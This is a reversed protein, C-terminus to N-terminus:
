QQLDFISGDDTVTNLKWAFLNQERFLVTQNTQKNRQKLPDSTIENDVVVVVL